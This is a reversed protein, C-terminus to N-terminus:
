ETESGLVALLMELAQITTAEKIRTRDGGFVHKACRAGAPTAIAIYVLGVPKHDSGGGPGAIGTTAIAVETGLLRRVGGAMEIACPESVAGFDVLTAAAVGLLDSKVANNYAILGGQYYASSGPIETLLHGILGGSCSEATALRWGARTLKSGIERALDFAHDDM